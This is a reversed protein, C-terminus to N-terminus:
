YGTPHGFFLDCAISMRMVGPSPKVYHGLYSPFVYVTDAEPTIQYNAFHNKTIDWEYGRGACGRPDVLVLNGPNPILYFVASVQAGNHVHLDLGDNNQSYICWMSTRYDKDNLTIGFEEQVYRLLAPLIVDDHLKSLTPREAPDYLDVRSGYANNNSDENIGMSFIEGIAVDIDVDHDEIHDKHIVTKWPEIREYAM